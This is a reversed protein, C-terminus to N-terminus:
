SIRGFRSVEAMFRAEEGKKAINRHSVKVMLPGAGSLMSFNWPPQNQNVAERLQGLKVNKGKGTSLTGDPEFDLIIQARVVVKDREMAAKVSADQIIFPPNFKNMTDKEGPRQKSDFEISEFCKEDIADIFAQFEGEPCLLFETSMPENVTTNLFAAPDFM